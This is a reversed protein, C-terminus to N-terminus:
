NNRSIYNQYLNEIIEKEKNNKNKAYEAIFIKITRDEKNLANERLFDLNKKINDLTEIIESEILSNESEIEKIEKDCNKVQKNCRNLIEKNCEISINIKNLDSTKSKRTESL